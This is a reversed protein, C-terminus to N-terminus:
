ERRDVCAIISETRDHDKAPVGFILCDKVRPHQLLLEEISEPAIKRGAVNIQDGVRGRLYITGGKIEAMDSTRFVGDRLNEKEPWYGLGVAASRVELCGDEGVSLHVNDMAEGVIASDTRPQASSRLCHRRM